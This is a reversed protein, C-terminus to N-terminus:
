VDMDAATLFWKNKDYVTEDNSFVLVSNSDSRKKFGVKKLANFIMKDGFFRFSISDKKQKRSFKVFQQLLSVYMKENEALLDDIYFGSKLNTYVIYALLENNSNQLTFIKFTNIPYYSFRWKLYESNREGIISYNLSVKEWLRNFRDDFTDLINVMIGNLNTTNLTFKVYLFFNAILAVMKTLMSLKFINRLYRETRVVKVWREMKGIPKYGVRRLVGDSKKNPIAFIVKYNKLHLVNKQVQLAPGLSRHNIDVLFNNPYGCSSDTGFVKMKREVVGCCGVIVDDQNLVFFTSNMVPRYPNNGFAWELLKRRNKYGNSEWLNLVEEEVETFDTRKVLYTGAPMTSKVKTSKTKQPLM